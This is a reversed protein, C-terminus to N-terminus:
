GSGRGSIMLATVVRISSRCRIHGGGGRNPYVAPLRLLGLHLKEGGPGARGDSMGLARARADDITRFHLFPGCPDSREEGHFPPVTIIHYSVFM